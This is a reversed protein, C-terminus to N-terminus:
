RVDNEVATAEPHFGSRPVKAPMDRGRGGDPPPPPVARDITLSAAPARRGSPPSDGHTIM